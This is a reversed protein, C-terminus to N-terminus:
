RCTDSVSRISTVNLGDVGGEGMLSARVSMRHGVFKDLPTLVFRLTFQRDGLPGLTSVDEGELVRVPDSGRHLQWSRDAGRVLCGVVHVFSGSPLERSGDKRVIDVGAASALTLESSGAPFQNVRLIHAVTDAYVASGLTGKLSGDESHPMNASVYALLREVTTNQWTTWFREGALARHLGGELNVGHCEACHTAYLQRGREAQADTYVGDWVSRGSGQSQAGATQLLLAAALVIVALHVPAARGRGHIPVRRMDPIIASPARARRGGTKPRGPTHAPPRGTKVGTGSREYVRRRHVPEERGPQQERKRRSEAALRREMRVEVAIVIVMVMVVAQREMTMTCGHRQRLIPRRMELVAVRRAVRHGEHHGRGDQRDQLDHVALHIRRRHQNVHVPRRRHDAVGINADM